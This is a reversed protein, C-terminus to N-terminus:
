AALLLVSYHLPLGYAFSNHQLRNKKLLTYKKKAHVLPLRGQEIWHHHYLQTTDLLFPSFWLPYLYPSAPISCLFFVGYLFIAVCYFNGYLFIVMCFINPNKGMCFFVMCFFQWVFFKSHIIRMCFIAMCFFIVYYVM